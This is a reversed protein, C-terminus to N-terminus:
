KTRPEYHEKLAKLVNPWANVFYARTQQWEAAHDPHEKAQEAFGMHTLTIRTNHGGSPEIRIVVWTRKARAHKLHPPANWSFSLMKEPEYSLIVCGESGREGAPAEPPAFYLEYPGGVRLQVNNDTLFGKVGEHTTLIKWVDSPMAGVVIEAKIPDLPGAAPAAAVSKPNEDVEHGKMNKILTQMVWANGQTFFARMKQSEEDDGFGVMAIRLHTKGNGADGLTVVTQVSKYANMFPFKAPPKSIHFAFVHLPDLAIIENEITGDDGLTGDPNYHTQIKGGPRLDLKAQAVGLKKWGEPTAFVDWVAQVPADLDAECIVPSTDAQAHARANAAAPPPGQEFGYVSACLLAAACAMVSMTVRIRM